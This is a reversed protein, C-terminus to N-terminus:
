KLSCINIDWIFDRLHENTVDVLKTDRGSKNSRQAM